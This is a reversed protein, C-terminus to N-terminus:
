IAEIKLWALRQDVATELRAADQVQEPKVKGKCAKQAKRMQAVVQLTNCFTIEENTMEARRLQAVDRLANLEEDTVDVDSM